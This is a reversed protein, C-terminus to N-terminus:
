LFYRFEESDAMTIGDVVGPYMYRDGSFIM